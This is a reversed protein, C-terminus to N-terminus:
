HSHKSSQRQSVLPKRSKFSTSIIKRTTDKAQSKKLDEFIATLDNNFKKAHEERIQHLEEIIPDRWM